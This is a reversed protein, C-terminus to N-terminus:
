YASRQKQNSKKTILFDCTQIIGMIQCPASLVNLLASITLAVSEQSTFSVQHLSDNYSHTIMGNLGRFEIHSLEFM